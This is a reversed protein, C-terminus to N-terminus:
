AMRIEDDSDDEKSEHGESEHGESEDEERGDGDERDEESWIDENGRVVGDYQERGSGKANYRPCGGVNFHGSGDDIAV